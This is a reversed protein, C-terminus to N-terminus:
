QWLDASKTGKMQKKPVVGGGGVTSTMYPLGRGPIYNSSNHAETNSLLPRWWFVNIYYTQQINLVILFVILSVIRRVCLIQFRRIHLFALHLYTILEGLGFKPNVICAYFLHLKTSSVLFTQMIIWMHSFNSLYKTTGTKISLCLNDSVTLLHSIDGRQSVPSGDLMFFTCDMGFFIELTETQMKDKRRGALIPPSRLIHFSSVSVKYIKKPISQVERNNWDHLFWIPGCSAVKKLQLKKQYRGKVRQLVLLGLPVDFGQGTHMMYFPLTTKVRGHIPRLLANRSRFGDAPIVNRRRRMMFLPRELVKQADPRSFSIVHVRAALRSAMSSRASCCSRINCHLMAFLTTWSNQRLSHADPLMTQDPCLLWALHHDCEAIICCYYTFWSAMQFPHYEFLQFWDECTDGDPARWLPCTLLLKPM